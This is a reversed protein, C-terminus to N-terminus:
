PRWVGEPAAPVLGLPATPDPPFGHGDCGQCGGVNCNPCINIGPVYPRAMMSPVSFCARIARAMEELERAVSEANDETVALEIMDQGTPAFQVRVVRTTQVNWTFSTDM